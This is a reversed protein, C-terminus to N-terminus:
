FQEGTMLLWWESMFYLKGGLLYFYYLNDSVQTMQMCMYLYKLSGLDDYQNTTRFNHIFM